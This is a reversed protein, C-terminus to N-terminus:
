KRVRVDLLDVVQMSHNRRLLLSFKPLVATLAQDHIVLFEALCRDLKDALGPERGSKHGVNAREGRSGQSEVSLRRKQTARQAFGRRVM